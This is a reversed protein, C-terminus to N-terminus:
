ITRNTKYNLLKNFKLIQINSMDLYYLDFKNINYAIDYFVNVNM